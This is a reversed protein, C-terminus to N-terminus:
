VNETKMKEVAEKIKRSMYESPNYTGYMCRYVTSKNAGIEKAIATLSLGEEFAERLLLSTANGTDVWNERSIRERSFKLSETKRDKTIPILEYAKSMDIGSQSLVDIVAPLRDTPCTAIVKAAKLYDNFCASM